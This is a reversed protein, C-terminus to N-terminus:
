KRLCFAVQRSLSRAKTFLGKGYKIAAIKTLNVTLDPDVSIEHRKDLAQSYPFSAYIVLDDAYLIM